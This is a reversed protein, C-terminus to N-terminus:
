NDNLKNRLAITTSFIQRLRRDNTDVLNATNPPFNIVQQTDVVNTETSRVLLDVRISVVNEWTIVNAETVYNIVNNIEEGYTVHMREIGEVLPEPPAAGIQRFLTPEQTANDIGVFYTINAGLNGSNNTALFVKGNSFDKGLHDTRNGFISDADIEFKREIANFGTIEFMAAKVCNEDLAVLIVASSEDQKTEDIKSIAELISQVSQNATIVLGDFQSDDNSEITLPNSLRTFVAGNIAIARSNGPPNLALADATLDPQAVFAQREPRAIDATDLSIVEDLNNYTRHSFNSLISLIRSADIADNKDWDVAVRLDLTDDFEFNSSGFEPVFNVDGGCLERGTLYATFRLDSSIFEVAFRGNEQIRSLAENTRFTQSNSLFVALVGGVLFLGLVLAIMLEVLTFGQNLKKISHM